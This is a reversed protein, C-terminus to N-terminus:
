PKSEYRAIAARLDDEANWLESRAQTYAMSQRMRTAEDVGAANMMGLGEVRQRKEAVSAALGDIIARHEPKM